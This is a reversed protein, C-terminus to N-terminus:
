RPVGIQIEDLLGELERIFRKNKPSCVSRMPAYADRGRIPLQFGLQREAELFQRVFDLIGRHIQRIQEPAARNKQFLCRYGGAEGPYFGQLSGEPASLLLEWYLNHGQAPDHANWLDRNEGQSYLYSVLQGGALFPEAAEPEPSLRSSTGALLGTIRCNLNWIRNVACNLTLPGSGAWGIDVAVAQKCGRLLTGYYLGGAQRQERYRELVRDWHEILYDQISGVNKNTLKEDPRLQIDRCLPEVFDPLEMGLLVQRITFGQNVKHYLFRRFYDQKYYQATLKGAALRSWYAYVTHAREEPYLLRYAQLLVAGDRSLFLIRDPQHAAAYEHIFRCYGTVFLGGYIFGYEYARSFERLGSHIQANVVARYVSGTLPSLDEARYRGGQLGTNPYYFPGFGGAKAQIQDAYAHDGVHAYTRDEGYQKRIQRYLAGDSKSQARDSSVFCAQLGCYGCRRLLEQVRKEGLYMDSTAIVCKERRILERVVPLMYPNAYCCTQECTWEAQIGVAMPIGTTQELVTWIEELSVENTKKERMNKQRALREAEVRLRKFDPYQLRIAVLDFVDEPRSVRRFLLTDFVDFSIVDYAALRQAFAEPTERRSLSSESGPCFLLKEEDAAAPDALNRRFLLVYQVQLWLLYLLAPLRGKKQRMRLYRERIGPVRNVLLQYIRARM